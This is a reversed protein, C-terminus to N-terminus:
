SCQSSLDIPADHWNHESAIDQLEDIFDDYIYNQFEWARETINRVINGEYYAATMPILLSKPKVLFLKVLTPDANKM